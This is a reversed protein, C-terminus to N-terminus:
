RGLRAGARRRARSRKARAVVWESPAARSAFASLRAGSACCARSPMKPPPPWPPRRSAFASAVPHGQHRRHGRGARRMGCCRSAPLAAPSARTLRRRGCLEGGVRRSGPPPPPPSPRLRPPRGGGGEAHERPDGSACTARGFGLGVAPWSGLARRRVARCLPRAVPASSRPRRMLASAPQRRRDDPAPSSRRASIRRLVAARPRPRPRPSRARSGNQRRDAAAAVAPTWPSRRTVFYGAACSVVAACPAGDGGAAFCAAGAARRRWDAALGIPDPGVAWAILPRASTAMQAIGRKCCLRRLMRAASRATSRGQAARRDCSAVPRAGRRTRRRRAPERGPRVSAAAPADAAGPVRPGRRRARRRRPRALAGRLGLPPQAPEDDRRSRRWRASGGRSRCGASRRNQDRQARCCADGGRRAGDSRAARRGLPLACCSRSTSARPTAAGCCAPPM